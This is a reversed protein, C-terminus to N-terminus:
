PLLRLRYYRATFTTAAGVDVYNTESSVLNTVTFIDSFNNSL